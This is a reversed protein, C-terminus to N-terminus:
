HTATVDDIRIIFTAFLGANTLNRDKTILGFGDRIYNNQLSSHNQM